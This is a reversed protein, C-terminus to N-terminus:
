WEKGSSKSYSGSRFCADGIAQLEEQTRNDRPSNCTLSALHKAKTEANDCGSLVGTLVIIFLSLRRM